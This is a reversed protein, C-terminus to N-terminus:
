INVVMPKMLVFLVKHSESSKLLDLLSNFEPQKDEPVYKLPYTVPLYKVSVRFGSNFFIKAIDELQYDHVPYRETSKIRSKRYAWTPNDTHCGFTFIYHGGYKLIDFMKAAHKNIDEITYLVEQSFITDFSESQFHELEDSHYVNINKANIFKKKAVSILQNDIEFGVMELKPFYFNLLELFGGNGMGFDLIFSKKELDIISRAEDIISVWFPFNPNNKVALPVDYTKLIM